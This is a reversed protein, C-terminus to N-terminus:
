PKRAPANTPAVETCYWALILKGWTLRAGNWDLDATRTPEPQFRATRALELASQDASALGCSKLLTTSFPRGNEDIEIQVESNTLFDNCALVPLRLPRLLRRGALNGEIRLHTNTAGLRGPVSAEALPPLPKDVLEAATSALSRNPESFSSGLRSQRPPMWLPEEHWETLQYRVEPRNTWANGFSGELSALSFNTWAGGSFGEPSVLAFLTPDSTELQAALKEGGITGAVLRLHTTLVPKRIAGSQRNALFWLVSIQCALLVGM